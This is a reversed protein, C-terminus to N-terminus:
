DLELKLITYYQSLLDNSMTELNLLRIYVKSDLFRLLFLIWFYIVLSPYHQSLLNQMLFFCYWIYLTTKLKKYTAQEWGLNLKLFHTKSKKNKQWDIIYELQRIEDRQSCIYVCVCLCVNYYRSLRENADLILPWLM